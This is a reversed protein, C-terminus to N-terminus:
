SPVFLMSEEDESYPVMKEFKLGLKELVHISAKNETSTIGVIRKIGLTNHGYDMAAMAAETAYGKGAFEPMLAYGVDPCDLSDRKVLGCVGIPEGTSKLCTLYMGFGYTQYHWLFKDEIHAKCEELTKIGKDGINQIFSEDTLLKLIFPADSVQTESLILRPTEFVSM